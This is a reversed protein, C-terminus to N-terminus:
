ARAQRLSRRPPHALEPRRRAPRARDGDDRAFASHIHVIEVKNFGTQQIRYEGARRAPEFGISWPKEDGETLYFFQGRSQLPDLPRRILDIAFGGREEAMVTAAGRGDRWVEVGVSGNNFAFSWPAHSLAESAGAFTPTPAGHRTRMREALFYAAGAIGVGAVAYALALVKVPGPMPGGHSLAEAGTWAKDWEAGRPIYFPILLPAWTGFRRIGDPIARTRAGHGLFRGAAEDARDGGLFSLNVLTAVRLGMHDFWIIVRLWDYALLGLFMMLSFNRFDANPLSIDAGIAVLTRVAGDQNYWSPDPSQRLFTNIIPAMWLGWRM